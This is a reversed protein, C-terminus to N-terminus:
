RCFTRTPHIQKTAAKNIFDQLDFARTEALNDGAFMAALIAIVLIKTCATM